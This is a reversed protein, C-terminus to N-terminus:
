LEDYACPLSLLRSTGHSKLSELDVEVVSGGTLNYRGAVKEFLAM